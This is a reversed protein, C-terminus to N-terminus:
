RLTPADVPGGDAPPRVAEGEKRDPELQRSSQLWEPPGAPWDLAHLLVEDMHRVCVVTLGDRVEAPLDPLDKENAGPILVTSLGQRWAALLKSKVGGIPLVRGRLSVEGTMAVTSRVPVDTLASVLATTM